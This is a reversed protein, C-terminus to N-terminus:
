KSLITRLWHIAFAAIVVQLILRTYDKQTKVEPQQTTISSSSGSGVMVSPVDATITPVVETQPVAVQKPATTTVPSQEKALQNSVAVIQATGDLATAPTVAIPTQNTNLQRKIPSSVGISNAKIAAVGTAGNRYNIKKSRM